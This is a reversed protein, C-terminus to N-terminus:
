NNTYNPDNIWDRGSSNVKKRVIYTTGPSLSVTAGVDTIDDPFKRWGAGQLYYYTQNPARNFGTGPTYALLQDTITDSDPSDTILSKTQDAIRLGSANLTVAAPRAISIFTDNGKTASGGPVFSITRNLLVSGLSTISLAAANRRRIIFAENPRLIYNGYNTSDDGFARWGALSTDYHLSLNPAKNQSVATYNPILVEDKVTDADPWAEIVPSAGNQLVESIRWYPRIRLSNGIALAATANGTLPHLTLDDGETDLTLSNTTNATIRYYLGQLPGSTFEAYYTLPQTAASYVFQSATWNPSTSGANVTFSAAAVSGAVTGAFVADRVMPVSILNDSAGAVAITYFGVPDTTATTQAQATSYFSGVLIAAALPLGLTFTKM